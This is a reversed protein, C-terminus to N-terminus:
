VCYIHFVVCGLEIGLIIIDPEVNEWDCALFKGSRGLGSQIEDAMFLVNESQCLDYAEKLFGDPPINIGAEGQIPDILFGATNENVAAKLVDIDSYLVLKFVPLIPGYSKKDKEKSSLSIDLMTC